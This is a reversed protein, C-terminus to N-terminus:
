FRGHRSGPDFADRLGEGVLTVSVVLITLAVGPMAAIWWADRAYARGDAIMTGWSPTTPPVGVGLFSLSAEVVIIRAVEFSAIVAVLGVINPLVHTFLIRFHSCGVARAAEVFQHERISLVLSRVPRAYSFWSTFIFVMLLNTLSPGVLTVAALALLIYPISMQVDTVSRVAWDVPGGFFGGLLGLTVGLATAGLVSLMGVTVSVRTGSVTRSLVDRGLQDTGLYHIVGGPKALPPVLRAGLDTKLPSFPTVQNGTIAILIALILVALGFLAGPYRRFRRWAEWYLSTRATEPEVREATLSNM